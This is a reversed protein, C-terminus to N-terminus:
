PAPETGRSTAVLLGARFALGGLVLSAGLYGIALGLRGEDLFQALELAFTSFTTLAGCFGTTVGIVLSTHLKPRFRTVVYGLLACGVLNAVFTEAPWANPGDAIEILAWRTLAGVAGGFAVMIAVKRDM